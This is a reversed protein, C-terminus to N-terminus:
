VCIFLLATWQKPSYPYLHLEQIDTFLLAEELESTSQAQEQLFLSSFNYPESLEEQAGQRPGLVSYQSTKGIYLLYIPFQLLKM